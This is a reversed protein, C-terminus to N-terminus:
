IPTVVAAVKIVSLSLTLYASVSQRLHDQTGDTKVTEKSLSENLNRIQLAPYFEGSVDAAKVEGIQALM